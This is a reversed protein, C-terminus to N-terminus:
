GKDKTLTRQSNVLDVGLNLIEIIIIFHIFTGFSIDRQAKKQVILGIDLNRQGRLRLDRFHMLNM